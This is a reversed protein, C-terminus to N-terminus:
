QYGHIARMIQISLYFDCTIDFSFHCCESLVMCKDPILSILWADAILIAIWIYEM